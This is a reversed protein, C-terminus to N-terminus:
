QGPANRRKARESTWAQVRRELQILPGGSSSLVVEHFARLDFSKGLETEADARLNRIKERAIMATCARGPWVTMRDVEIEMRSRDLGTTDTLFVIAQERTWRKAHLGTDATMRAAELLLSQLYGVRGVPDNDYAGSEAALDGAYIAWGLSTPGEPTLADIGTPGSQRRIWSSALHRGPLTERYATAPLSWLPWDGPSAINIDLRAPGGGDLPAPHHLIWSGPRGAVNEGALRLEPEPLDQAPTLSLSRSRGWSMRDRIGALIRERGELTDPTLYAPELALARLRAGVPGAPRGLRILARDLESSIQRVLALGVDHVQQPSLDGGTQYALVDAYYAEGKPLRWVGAEEPARPLEAELRDILADYADRIDGSLLDTVRRIRAAIEAEPLDPIQSLAESLHLTLPHSSPDTPRFARAQGLTLELIQRPPSAGQDIDLEARRREDTMAEALGELRILWADAERASAIPPGSTMLEMLRVHAGDAPDVVYPGAEGPRVYGYPYRELRTAAELTTLAGLREIRAAPSLQDPDLSELAKLFELYALSRREAAAMSRDGMPTSPFPGFREPSPRLRQTLDPSAIFERRSIEVLVDQLRADNVEGNRSCAGSALLVLSAAAARSRFAM